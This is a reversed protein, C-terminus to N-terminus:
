PTKLPERNLDSITGRMESKMSDAALTFSDSTAAASYRRAFDALSDLIPRTEAHLTANIRIRVELGSFNGYFIVITAM